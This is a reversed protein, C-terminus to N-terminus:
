NSTETKQAKKLLISEYWEKSHNDMNDPNSYIFKCNRCSENQCRRGEIHMRRFNELNEGLWIEELSEDKINGVKTGKNWDVICICVDGNQKVNLSLFPTTCIKKYGSMSNSGYYGQVLTEDTKGQKDIRSILNRNDFGNWNMPREINVEDSIGSYMKLFEQNEFGYSDIIKVYLVPEVKGAQDRIEKFRKIKNYIVKPSIKSKTIKYNSKGYISYISIRLYTLGSNILDLSLEESLLSANTTVTIVKSVDDDRAMSIMKTLNKNLLPEGDGYLNLNNLKGMAKIDHLLKEYLKNDMHGRSGVIDYFDEFNMPCQVCRFNCINTPEICLGLPMKLTPLLKNLPERQINKETFAIM